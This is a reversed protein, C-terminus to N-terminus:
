NLLNTLRYIAQRIPRAEWPEALRPQGGFRIIAPIIELQRVGDADLWVNLIMTEPPGDIEFAFNGLGYAIVGTEEFKIGQLIHAHHGLVLDAGAQIAAQAAATQPESPAEIYEYGSHLLVIVLDAQARVATVDEIIWEPRAWALGPNDPTATWSETEFGSVEKPVHVYALFALSLGNIHHIVATRAETLNAGAGVPVVNAERLLQIGQLLVEPGYDLGHNNALSVIDFGAQALAPAAQPPARFTYSKPAPQGGDGLASEVNGVAIDAARLQPAVGEFPYALDDKQLAFGLARDLMIDGVAALHVTATQPWHHSLHDALSTAAAQTQRTSLLSWRQQLPYNPDTPHRGNVRLAKQDPTLDPWSTVTVRGDGDNLIAQAAELSIDEWDTTFPVALIIPDQHILRGNSSEVLALQAIGDALAQEPKDTTILQWHGTSQFTNLLSPLINVLAPPIALTYSIKPTPSSQPTTQPNHITTPVATPPPPTAILTPLHTHSSNVPLQSNDVTLPATTPALTPLPNQATQCAIILSSLILTLLLYPHNTM